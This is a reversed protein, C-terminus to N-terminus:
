YELVVADGFVSHYDFFGAQELKRTKEKNMVEEKNEIIGKSKKLKMM